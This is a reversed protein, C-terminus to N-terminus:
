VIVGKLLLPQGPVGAVTFTVTVGNGNNVAVAVLGTIQLLWGAFIVKDVFSVPV